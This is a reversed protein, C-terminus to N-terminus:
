VFDSRDSRSIFLIGSRVFTRIVSVERYMGHYSSVNRSEQAIFTPVGSLQVEIYDLNRDSMTTGANNEILRYSKIALVRYIKVPVESVIVDGPFILVSLPM